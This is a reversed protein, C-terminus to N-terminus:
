TIPSQYKPLKLKSLNATWPGKWRTVKLYTLRMSKDNNDWYNRATVELNKCHRGKAKCGILNQYIQILHSSGYTIELASVVNDSCRWRWVKLKQELTTRPLIEMAKGKPALVLLTAKEENTWGNYEAATEFQGGIFSNRWRFDTAERSVIKRIEWM